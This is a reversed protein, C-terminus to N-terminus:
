NSDSKLANCKRVLCEQVYCGPNRIRGGTMQQMGETRDGM